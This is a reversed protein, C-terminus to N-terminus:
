FSFSVHQPGHIQGKQKQGLPIDGQRGDVASSGRKNSRLLPEAALSLEMDKEGLGLAMTTVREIREVSPGM